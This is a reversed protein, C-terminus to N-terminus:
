DEDEEAEVNNIYLTGEGFPDEQIDGPGSYDFTYSATIGDSVEEKAGDEDDAEVGSVVFPSDPLDDFWVSVTYTPKYDALNWEDILQTLTGNPNDRHWRVIAKYVQEVNNDM